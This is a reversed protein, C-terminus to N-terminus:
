GTLQDSQGPPENRARLHGDQDIVAEIHGESGTRRTDM